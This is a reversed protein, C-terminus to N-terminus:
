LKIISTKLINQNLIFEHEVKQIAKADAKFKLHSYHGNEHGRILYWLKKSGWDEEGSVEASNKVLIDKIIQKTEDIVTSSGEIIISTMEYSRM